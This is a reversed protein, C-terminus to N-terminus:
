TVTAKMTNNQEHHKKTKSSLEQHKKGKRLTSTAKIQMRSFARRRWVYSLPLQTSWPYQSNVFYSTRLIMSGCCVCSTTFHHVGWICLSILPQQHHISSDARRPSFKKHWCDVTNAHMSKHCWFLKSGIYIHKCTETLTALQITKKAVKFYSVTYIQIMWINIAHSSLM